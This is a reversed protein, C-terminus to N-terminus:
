KIDKTLQVECIIWVDEGVVVGGAEMVTNWHLGWDKRNIKGNINFGARQGGWPDKIIGGFDVDLKIQKKIDKITLEGYIKYKDDAESKEFTNGTFHIEKFKETYFFDASKLHEDRKENGTNVSAANLWFDIEASIFDEGTTYISADFEAFTGRVNTIMLHKVKFGIETHIPDINWKVKVLEKEM